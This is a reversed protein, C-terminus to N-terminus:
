KESEEPLDAAAAGSGQPIAVAGSFSSHQVGREVPERPLGAPQRRRELAVAGVAFQQVVEQGGAVLGGELRQQAAV